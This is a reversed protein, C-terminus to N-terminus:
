EMNTNMNLVHMVTELQENRLVQIRKFTESYNPHLSVLFLDLIFSVDAAQKELWIANNSVTFGTPTKGNFIRLQMAAFASLKSCNEILQELIEEKKLKFFIRELKKVQRMNNELHAAVDRCIDKTVVAGTCVHESEHEAACQRLAQIAEELNKETIEM